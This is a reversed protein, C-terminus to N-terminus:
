SCSNMAIKRSQLPTLSSRAGCVASQGLADGPSTHVLHMGMVPAPAAIAALEHDQRGACQTSGLIALVKHLQSCTLTCRLARRVAVQSVQADREKPHASESKRQWCWMQREM